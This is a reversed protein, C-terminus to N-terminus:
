KKGGAKTDIGITELIRETAHGDCACMFKERFRIIEDRDFETEINQIYKIIEETTYVIPGPTLEEYDYYFGRWEDYEELDYAFFILPREFLSYEFVLSSYDSICIDACSILDDINATVSVDMAFDACDEPIIPPVKVFPHHKILLFYEDGLADKMERIDLRDPGKARKIRGRFTPAYLIIKRGAAGPALEHVRERASRLYDEDYFVDTRCIGTAKVVDTGQYGMAEEYAWIVEPASVTILDMNKYGPYALKAKMDGGFIYDATSYGFQKFAGCGHWLQVATTGKRKNFGCITGLAEATFLYRATAVEKVFRIESRIQERVRLMKRGLIMQKISYKELREVTQMMYQLNGDIELKAPEVFIVKKPDVPRIRNVLYVFPYIVKLTLYRILADRLKRRKIRFTDKEITRAELGKLFQAEKKIKSKWLLKVPISKVRGLVEEETYDTIIGLDSNKSFRSYLYYRTLTETDGLIFPDSMADLKTVSILKNEWTLDLQNFSTRIKQAAYEPFFAVSNSLLAETGIETRRYLPATVFLVGANSEMFNYMRRVISCSFYVPKDIFWIYKSHCQGYATNRFNDDQTVITRFNLKNAWYEDVIDRLGEELLIEFQPSDQLYIGEIITNLTKSDDPGSIAFTIRPISTLAERDPMEDYRFAFDRSERSVMDSWEHPFVKTKLESLKEDVTDLLSSDTQWLQRYFRDLCIDEAFFSYLASKFREYDNKLEKEAIPDALADKSERFKRDVAKQAKELARFASSFAKQDPQIQTLGDGAAPVERFRLQADRCGFITEAKLCFDIYFALESGYPIDAFSIGNERITKKKFLKDEISLKTILDPELLHLKKSPRSLYTMGGIALDAKNRFAANYIKEFYTDDYKCGSNGFAIYRGTANELGLNYAPGIGETESYLLKFRDDGEILKSIAKNAKDASGRVVIICEWNKIIQSRIDGIVGGIYEGAGHVPIIISLKATAQMRWKRTREKQM